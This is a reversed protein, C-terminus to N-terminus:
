AVEQILSDSAAASRRAPKRVAAVPQFEVEEGCVTCVTIEAEDYYGTEPCQGYHYFETRVSEHECPALTVSKVRVITTHPNMFMAATQNIAKAIDPATMGSMAALTEFSLDLRHNHYFSM